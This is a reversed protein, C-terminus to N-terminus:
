VLPSESSRRRLAGSHGGWGGAGGVERKEVALQEMRRLMDRRERELVDVRERLEGATEGGDGAPPAPAHPRGPHLRRARMPEAPRLLM